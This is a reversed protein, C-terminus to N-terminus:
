AVQRSLPLLLLIGRKSPKYIPISLQLSFSLSLLLLSTLGPKHFAITDHTLPPHPHTHYSIASCTLPIHPIITIHSISLTGGDVKLLSALLLMRPRFFTNRWTDCLIPELDALVFWIWVLCMPNSPASNIPKARALNAFKM